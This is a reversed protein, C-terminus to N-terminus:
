RRVAVITRISGSSPDVRPSFIPRHSTQQSRSFMSLKRQKLSSCQGLFSFAHDHGRLAAEEPILHYSGACPGAEHAVSEAVHAPAICALSPRRRRSLRRRCRWFDYSFRVCQRLHDGRSRPCKDARDRSACAVRSPWRGQEGEHSRGATLGGEEAWDAIFGNVATITPTREVTRLKAMMTMVAMSCSPHQGTVALHTPEQIRAAALMVMRTRVHRLMYRVHRARLTSAAFAESDPISATPRSRAEEACRAAGASKECPFM